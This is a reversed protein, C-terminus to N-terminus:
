RDETNSVLARHTLIEIEALGAFVPNSMLMGKDLDSM